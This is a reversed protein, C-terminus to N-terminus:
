EGGGGHPSPKGWPGTRWMDSKGDSGARSARKVVGYAALEELARRIAGTPLGLATAIQTATAQYGDAACKLRLYEYVQRRLPHCSAFAIRQVVGFATRREVGLTDLGALLRELMLGLRAPGEAGPVSTIERTRPDRAVVGRLRVTLATIKSLSATEAATLPRPQPLETAFLGAVAEALEDRMQKTKDGVHELAREFQGAAPRLRCLLFRDGMAGIVGYHNDIEPTVGFAMGMKGDWRLEQGGDTGLHRDWSGDYIERLAALLENKADPRMSLISTFDKLVMIGFDGIRQLLGGSASRLRQRKPVGSLLGPLTLTSARVVFPLRATSNLIETKASSPPAVLGLWIPDGDLLNAAITGLLAYVPMLDKLVLWHEFVAVVEDITKPDPAAQQREKSASTDADADSGSSIDLWDTLARVIAPAFLTKMRPTGPLKGGGRLQKVAGRAASVRDKWEPDGATCAIAEVFHAIDGEEWSARALFGGLVLAAEHRQGKDPYHRVLLSAAALKSVYGILEGGDVQAPEGDRDWEIMEDSPHRSPPFMSLAGKIQGNEVRGTRLEVLCAGHEADDDSVQRTPDDFKIAANWAQVWANSVYLWHAARSSARGFRADTEPLFYRALSRAEVCDLDADCLGNSVPGFQVGINTLWENSFEEPTFETNQWGNLTPHKLKPPIPM